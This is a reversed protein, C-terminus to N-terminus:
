EPQGGHDRALAGLWAETREHLGSLRDPFPVEAPFAELRYGEYAHAFTLRGEGYARLRAAEAIVPANGAGGDVCCM